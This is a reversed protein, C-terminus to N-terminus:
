RATDGRLDRLRRLLDDAEQRSVGMRTQFEWEQIAEPGGVVENLAAALIRLDGTSLEVADRFPWEEAPPAWGGPPERYRQTALCPTCAWSFERDLGLTHSRHRSADTLPGYCWDCSSQVEEAGPPDDSV